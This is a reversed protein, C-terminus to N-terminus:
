LVGREKAGRVQYGIRERPVKDKKGKPRGIHIGQERARKMGAKTRDSRRKSEYSAIFGILAVFVDTLEGISELWVEQLSILKVDYQHLAQIQQFLYSVGQRTVRDLAWVVVADFERMRADAKLRAWEKQHGAKWATENERYVNVIEWGRRKIWDELERVQNEPTQDETSVRAYIAVKMEETSRAAARYRYSPLMASM